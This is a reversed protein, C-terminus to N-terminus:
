YWHNAQWFNYAGEWGGYRGTVYGNMWRLSDVPDYPNGPVKSCPLAQALGCAGSSKNTANPNWGSERSVIADVYGWLSEPIGAAAMWESKTGGGTYAVVRSKSGVVEVQKVSEKTTLSVIEKRAVEHGDQITVEYTVTRSGKEGPTKVAHYGIERDADKVTETEFNVEEDVTITQKGERWIRLSLDSTIPTSLPVSTRDDGSLAINKEKLMAAVTTAQTRATMTKGYLTLNFPQARDVTMQLGGEQNVIGTNVDIKTTDEPYLEIGAQKAIQPATQYSSLVKQRVTGDIITVPRARYINVEYNDAVLETDLGPEIKDQPDLTIKADLFAQRLSSARSLIVREEGKDHITILREGPTPQSSEAGATSTVFFGVALMLLCSIALLLGHPTTTKKLLSRM